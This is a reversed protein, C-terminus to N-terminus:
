KEKLKRNIVTIRLKLLLLPIITSVGLILMLLIVDFVSNVSLRTTTQLKIYPYLLYPLHSIGYGFFAFFYQFIVFLFALFFNSRKFILTIALFFCVLSVLFMWSYNLLTDFHQPNHGQIGLFVLGSVMVIPVSLLLALKRMEERAALMGQKHSYYVMYSSSIFIVSISALLMEIWVYPSVVLNTLSLTVKSGVSVVFGGESIALVLSMLVPIILSIIGNMIDLAAVLREREAQLQSVASAFSRVIILLIILIGPFLLSSGLYYSTEPIIVGIGAFFLVFCIHIVDSIPSIYGKLTKIVSEKKGIARGFFIYFNAGFDISALILYIFIITWLGILIVSELM